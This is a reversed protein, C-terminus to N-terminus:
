WKVTTVSYPGVSIPNSSTATQIQINTQATATNSAYPVSGSVYTLGVKSQVMAGNLYITVTQAQNSKNTILLYHRGSAAV